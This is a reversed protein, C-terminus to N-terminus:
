QAYSDLFELPRAENILGHRAALEFYLQMGAELDENLDFTVCNTLYDVLEERPLGLREEYDDIIREMANVGEDKAAAFDVPLPEIAGNGKAMWMAFVFGRGTFDRWLTALDWTNLGKREFTMAPDGIVLAADFERLMRPVDPTSTKWTPESGLFEKFLIRILAASTRSSEDLGVSRIKKLNNFRSVLLM